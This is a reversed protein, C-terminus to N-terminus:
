IDPEPSFKASIYFKEKKTANNQTVPSGFEVDSFFASSEITQILASANDSEGQIQIEDDKIVLRTLWTDDPLIRTIENLLEISSIESTRKVALFNIQKLLTDREQRLAQLEQVAKRSQGAEAVLKDVDQELTSLPIYLVALLLIFVLCVLLLTLRNTDGPQEPRADPSLLNIKEGEAHEQSPRIADPVIGWNRIIDLQPDVRDRPAIILITNLKNTNKDHGTITFDFYTQDPTFPTRREMEFGLVQRLNARAVAPLALNKRLVLPEPILLLVETDHANCDRLWQIIATKQLTDDLVFTQEAAPRTTEETYHRFIVRRDEFEITIREPVSQFLRRLSAPVLYSLGRSWWGIYNMTRIHAIM